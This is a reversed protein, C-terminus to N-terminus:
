QFLQGSFSQDFFELLSSGCFPCPLLEVTALIQDSINRVKVTVYRQNSPYASIPPFLDGKIHRERWRAQRQANSMAAM